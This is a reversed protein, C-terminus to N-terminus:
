GVLPQEIARRCGTYLAYKDHKTNRGAFVRDEVLNTSTYSSRSYKNQVLHFNQFLNLIDMIIFQNVYHEDSHVYIYMSLLISM